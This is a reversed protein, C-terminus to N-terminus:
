NRSRFLAEFVPGIKLLEEASFWFEEVQNGSSDTKDLPDNGVYAYLNLDDKTGIPGMQMFRGLGPTYYRARYYYLGTEADFRRGTFRYPVGTGTSASSLNGYEAYVLTQCNVGTACGPMAPLM